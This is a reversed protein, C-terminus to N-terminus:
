DNYINGGNLLNSTDNFPEYIKRVDELTPNLLRIDNDFNWKFTSKNNTNANSVVILNYDNDYIRITLFSSKDKKYSEIIENVMEYIKIINVNSIHGVNIHLDSRREIQYKDNNYTDGYMNEEKYGYKNIISSYSDISIDGKNSFVIIDSKEVNPTSKYYYKFCGVIKPSPICSECAIKCVHCADYGVYQADKFEDKIYKNYINKNINKYYLNYGAIITIIGLILAIIIISILRFIKQKNVVKLDVVYTNCEDCKIVGENLKKGCNTCYNNM